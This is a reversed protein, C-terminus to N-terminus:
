LLFETMTMNLLESPLLPPREGRDEAPTTKWRQVRRKTALALMLIRRETTRTKMLTKLRDLDDLNRGLLPVFISNLSSVAYAIDTLITLNQRTEEASVDFATDSGAVTISTLHACNKIGEVLNPHNQLVLQCQRFIINELAPMTPLAAAIINVIAANLRAEQLHLIKLNPLAALTELLLLTNDRHNFVPRHFAIMRLNQCRSLFGMVMPWTNSSTHLRGSVFEKLNPLVAAVAFFLDDHGGMDYTGLTELNACQAIAALIATISSGANPVIKDLTLSKLNPLKPLVKTLIDSTSRTVPTLFHFYTITPCFNVFSLASIWNAENTPSRPSTSVGFELVRLSKLHTWSDRLMIGFDHCIKVNEVRLKKLLSLRQLVETWPRRDLFNVSRLDLYELQPAYSVLSAISNPVVLFTHLGILHLERLAPIGSNCTEALVNLFESIVDTSIHGVNVSLQISWIRNLNAAISQFFLDRINYLRVNLNCTVKTCPKNTVYCHAWVRQLSQPNADPRFTMWDTPISNQGYVNAIDAPTVAPAAAAAM